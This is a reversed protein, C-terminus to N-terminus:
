KYDTEPLDHHCPPDPNMIGYARSPHRRNDDLLRLFNKRNTKEIVPNGPVDKIPEETAFKRIKGKSDIIRVSVAGLPIGEEADTVHGVIPGRAQLM